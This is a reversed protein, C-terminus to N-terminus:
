KKLWFYRLKWVRTLSKQSWSSRVSRILDRLMWIKSMNFMFDYAELKFGHTVDPVPSKWVWAKSSPSISTIPKEILENGDSTTLRPPWLIAWHRWTFITVLWGHWMCISPSGVSTGSASIVISFHSWTLMKIRFLFRRTIALWESASAEVVVFKVSM